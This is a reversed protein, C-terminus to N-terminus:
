YNFGVIENVKEMTKSAIQRAKKSGEDLIDIILNKNSIYKDRKEQIPELYEIIRKLLIKQPWLM